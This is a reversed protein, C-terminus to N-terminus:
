GVLIERGPDEDWIARITRFWVYVCERSRGLKAAIEPVTYGEMVLRAAERWLPNPLRNILDEVEIRVIEGYERTPEIAAIRSFSGGCSSADGQIDTFHVDRFRRDLRRAKRETIKALTGWLVERRDVYDFKGRALGDCFDNIASLAADEDGNAAFRLHRAAHHTLREFYREWLPTIRARNGGRIGIVILTVSGCNDQTM